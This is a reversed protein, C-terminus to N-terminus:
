RVEIPTLVLDYFRLIGHGFAIIRKIKVNSVKKFYIFFGKFILPKRTTSCLPSSGSVEVSGTYREGLQALAGYTILQSLLNQSWLNILYVVKRYIIVCNMTIHDVLFTLHLVAFTNVIKILMPFQAKLNTSLDYLIM